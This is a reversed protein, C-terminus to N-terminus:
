AIDAPGVRQAASIRGDARVSLFRLFFNNGVDLQFQNSLTGDPSTPPTTSSGLIAGAFQYPGKFFNISPAQQRSGYVLLAADDENVWDDLADFDVSIKNTVAVGDAAVPALSDLAFVIPGDDIATLGAQVRPTNCRIYMQQGTLTLPDGLPGTIPVNTAYTTWEERQFSTLTQWASSLNGFIARLTVQPGTGPDTPIVRARLYNGGRNHSATIGGLSGSAVTVIASKFLM